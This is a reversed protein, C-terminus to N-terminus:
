VHIAHPAHYIFFPHKNGQAAAARHKKLLKLVDHMMKIEIQDKASTNGQFGTNGSAVEVSTSNASSSINSSSVHATRVAATDAALRAANSRRNASFKCNITISRNISSRSAAADIGAGTCVAAEIAAEGDPLVYVGNRSCCCFSLRMTNSYAPLM